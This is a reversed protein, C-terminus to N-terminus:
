AGPTRRVLLRVVGDSTGLLLEDGLLV